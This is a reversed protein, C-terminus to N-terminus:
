EASRAPNESLFQRWPKTRPHIYRHADDGTNAILDLATVFPTFAGHQQTYPTRSYDAYEVEIGSREFTEHELYNRAGHATVYKTGGLAAVIERIRESGTSRLRMTRSSILVKPVTIRLREALREVSDELLAPLSEAEFTREVIELAEARHPAGSFAHWLMQRHKRKWSQDAPEIENILRRASRDKIPVTMWSVGTSTKVQVRNTFSRDAFQVDDLHVFIDALSMLEFFGPWPFYMPQSIVVTTM